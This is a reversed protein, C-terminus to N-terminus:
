NPGARASTKRLSAKRTDAIRGLSLKVRTMFLAPQLKAAGFYAGAVVPKRREVEREDLNLVVLPPWQLESTRGRSKHDLGTVVEERHVSGEDEFRLSPRGAKRAVMVGAVPGSQNISTM